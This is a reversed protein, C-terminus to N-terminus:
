NPHTCTEGDALYKGCVVCGHGRPHSKQAIFKAVIEGMKEVAELAQAYEEAKSPPHAVRALLDIALNAVLAAVGSLAAIGLWELGRGTISPDAFYAMGGGIWVGSCLACSVLERWWAPGLKRLPAFITGSVFVLTIVVSFLVSIM